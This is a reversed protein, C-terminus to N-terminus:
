ICIPLLEKIYLCHYLISYNDILLEFPNLVEYVKKKNAFIELEKQADNKMAHIYHQFGISNKPYNIYKSFKIDAESDFISKEILPITIVDQLYKPLLNPNAIFDARSLNRNIKNKNSGKKTAKNSGKKTAKNSGKKTKNTKEVM